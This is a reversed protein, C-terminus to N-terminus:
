LIHAHTFTNTPGNTKTCVFSHYKKDVQTECTDPAYMYIYIYIFAYFYVHGYLIYIYMYYTHIYISIFHICICTCTTYMFINVREYITCSM